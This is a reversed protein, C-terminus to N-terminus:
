PTHLPQDRRAGQKKMQDARWSVLRQYAAAERELRASIDLRALTEPAIWDWNKWGPISDEQVSLDYVCSHPCVSWATHELTWGALPLRKVLHARAEEAWEFRREEKFCASAPVKMWVQFVDSETWRLVMMNAYAWPLHLDNLMVTYEPFGSSWPGRDCRGQFSIWRWEPRRIKDHFLSQAVEVGVRDTEDSSLCWIWQPSRYAERRGSEVELELIRSNEFQVDRLIAAGFYKNGLTQFREFGMVRAEKTPPVLGIKDAYPFTVPPVSAQWADWHYPSTWMKMFRRLWDSAFDPGPSTRLHKIAPDRGAFFDSMPGSLELPGDPLWFTIGRKLPRVESLFSEQKPIFATSAVPFPGVGREFEPGLAETFDMIQVDFGIDQLALALTEGRGYASIM